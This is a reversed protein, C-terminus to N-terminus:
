RKAGKPKKIIRYKKFTATRGYRTKKTVDEDEFVFGKQKMESVRTALKTIGLYEFAQMPSIWSHKELFKVIAEEQTMGQLRM